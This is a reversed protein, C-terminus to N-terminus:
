MLHMSLQFGSVSYVTAAALIPPGNPREPGRAPAQERARALGGIYTTQPNTGKKGFSL